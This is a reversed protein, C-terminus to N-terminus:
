CKKMMKLGYIYKRPAYELVRRVEILSMGGELNEIPPEEGGLAYVHAYGGCSLVAMVRELYELSRHPLDVIVRSFRDSSIENLFDDVRSVVIVIKGLLKNLTISRALYLAAWPNSDVAFCTARRKSAIHLSYPGIGSFLDLVREGDTVEESVRWHEYSLTPNFYVKEVDVVMKIGYEVHVTEGSGEGWLRVLKRVRFEGETASSSYVVRVGKAISAIAKGIIDGYVLLDDPLHVIAVDGVLQYSKPLRRLVHEPLVERLLDVYQLGRLGVEFEGVCETAPIDYEKLVNVARASLGDLVPLRVVGRSKDSRAKSNPLLYGLSRLVSLAKEAYRAEVEVCPAVISRSGM